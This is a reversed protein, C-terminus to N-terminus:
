QKATKNFKEGIALSDLETCHGSIRDLMALLIAEKTCPEVPSGWEKFEHHALVCHVARDIFEKPYNFSSLVSMLTHAGIFPHGLLNMEPKVRGDTSYELTKGFDHFLAAWMFLEVDFHWIGLNMINIGMKVIEYTHELLGGVYAHHHGTAAPYQSYLGYLESAQSKIETSLNNFLSMWEDNSPIKPILDLWCQSQPERTQVDSVKCSKIGSFDHLKKDSVEVIKFQYDDKSSSDWVYLSIPKANEASDGVLLSLQVYEKNSKTIAVKALKCFGIM